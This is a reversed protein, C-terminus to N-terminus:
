SFEYAVGGLARGDRELRSRLRKRGYHLRSKVTGEPLDLIDAIEKLSFGGLYFLVLVVRHELRLASLAERVIRQLENQEVITEPSSKPGARLREIVGEMPTLWRGRRTVWNYSLNVTVRYLWPALPRTEDFRDVSGYFRLFSEQLIDEATSPDHTIALAVRYVRTKHREYLTGLALLDGQRVRSILQSDEDRLSM